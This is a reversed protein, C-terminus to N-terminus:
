AAALHVHSPASAASLVPIVRHPRSTRVPAQRMRWVLLAAEAVISRSIKSKGVARDPFTIPVEVVRFGARHSLCNMEVNFAFGNAQVSSLRLRELVERRFCKFGSTCDRFPVGLVLRAYLSGGRSILHRL